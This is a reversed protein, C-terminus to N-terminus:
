SFKDLDFIQIRYNDSDAVYIKNKYIKIDHPCNFFGNSSGKSGFTSVYSGDLDFIQIRNNGSDAVFIKGGSVDIGMPHVLDGNKTGIKGFEMIMNNNESVSVSSSFSYIKIKNEHLASVFIKGESVAISYYNSIKPPGGGGSGGGGGGGGGGWAFAYQPQTVVSLSLVSSFLIICVIFFLLHRM